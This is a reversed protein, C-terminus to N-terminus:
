GIERIREVISAKALGKYSLLPICIGLFAMIPLVLLVPTVTFHESYFWFMNNAAVNLVPVFLVSLVLAILGSGASYILGEIMLMQKLQKGTMGIAQLVALENKRALIGAMVANFYNLVGVAGVIGCLLGGLLLFMQKLEDFESRQVAKSEYMYEYTTDTSLKSLFDEAKNEANSDAADFAYLMPSLRDGIENRLSKSGFIVNVGRSARRPGIQTPVVVYAAVTYTATTIDSYVFDNGSEKIDDAFAFSVKDGIKPADFDPIINGYEDKYAIFAVYNETESKLLSIDGEYETLKDILEDDMAEAVANEFYEGNEGRDIDESLPDNEKFRNYTSQDVIMNTYCSFDYGIGSNIAETNESIYAIDEETLGENGLATGKFKFYDSKGVVFDFTVTQTLWKETDFGSTFLFVCNLLVIALALSFFVLVTKRKNRGMNAFAMRRVKAGKTAQKKKKIGSNETYRLAEVPSVKAAIRGPKSTSILVTLLEFVAAGIFIYPSTSVTLASMSITSTKLVVGILGAGFGYGILLGLPIGVICLCLAQLRIIRKLQKSTVGITKLLGYYKIDGAVSIQFVNYIILYGTFAILLSFALLALITEISDSEMISTSSYGPNIGYDIYNEAEPNETDFGGELAVIEMDSELHFSSTLMVSMDTRLAGFGREEVVSKIEDVYEKSVNIFHVPSMHDFEWYGSLVFTDTYLASDDEYCNLYFSLTIESGIVPEVNLLALAQTDMIVENKATPLHGEKLEIYSWKTANEDMYSIEASRNKFLSTSNIGIVTRLGYEKLRTSGSLAEVDEDSVSKFGGHEYGGLERFTSTKSTADISSIITFLSTFLIATLVIAFTAIMNRRKNAFLSRLALRRICKKNNVKM